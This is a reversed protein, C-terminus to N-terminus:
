SADRDGVISQIAKKKQAINDAVAKEADKGMDWEEIIFTHLEELEVILDNAFEALKHAKEQWTTPEAM